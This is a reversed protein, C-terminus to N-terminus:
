GKQYCGPCPLRAALLERRDSPSNTLYLVGEAPGERSLDPPTSDQHQRALLITLTDTLM